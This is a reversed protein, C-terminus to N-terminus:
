SLDPLRVYGHGSGFGLENLRLEPKRKLAAKPVDFVVTGTVTADPGIDKLFFPEEQAGIAAVTGQTDPDYTNGRVELQFVKDTLTASENKDSHVKVKVVVFTGDAKEGLGYTQDGISGVAKASVIDYYLADVRVKRGFAVHPTCDSTARTGCSAPKKESSSKADAKDGADNTDASCGAFAAALLATAALQIM